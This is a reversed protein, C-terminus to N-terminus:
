IQTLFTDYLAQYQEAGKGEWGKKTVFLEELADTQDQDLNWVDLYYDLFWEGTSHLVPYKVWIVLGGGGSGSDTELVSVLAM